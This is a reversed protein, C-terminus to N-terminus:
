LCILEKIKTSIKEFTLKLASIQSGQTALHTDFNRLIKKVEKELKEIREVDVKEGMSLTKSKPLKDIKGKLTDTM